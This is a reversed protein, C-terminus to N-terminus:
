GDKESFVEAKFIYLETDKDRWAGKDLGAKHECLNDLFEEKSWGTELAVQPLFVGSQRGKRVLVGDRGLEIEEAGNVKKLPSLVSIEISVNKLDQLSLPAFRPDGVAAEVAMDRVCLYLPQSASLSGICGRLEGNETLTVFVGMDKNLLADNESIEAKKGSRLYSEISSRAIALLRNKQGKDLMDGGNSKYVAVSAYGVTWNGDAKEGTVEASNTHNLIEVGDCALQKATDLAIVASFGGCAQAKGERLAYYLGEPDMRDILGLTFDDTERAEKLSYGHYLDSSVVILVDEREGIVDKLASSISKCTNLSCDGTIVPVIKSGPLTEQLFPLQVEVSHEGAFASEDSSIDPSKKILRSSFDEDVLLAGLPTQFSGRPFVAAGNFSRHHSTGLIVVTRYGGGRVLSYGYAAAQGSYGYGAHPCILVRVRGKPKVPNASALFSKAMRSLEDGSSPYFQGSFDSQKVSAFCSPCSLFIFAQMLLSVKCLM